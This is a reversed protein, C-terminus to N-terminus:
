HLYVGYSLSLHLKHKGSSNSHNNFLLGLLLGLNRSCNLDSLLLSIQWIPTLLNLQMRLWLDAHCVTSPACFLHSVRLHPSLCAMQM